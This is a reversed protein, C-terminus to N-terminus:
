AIFAPTAADLAADAAALLPALTGHAARDSHLLDLVVALDTLPLVAEVQEDDADADSALAAWEHGVLGTMGATGDDLHDYGADAAHVLARGAAHLAAAPASFTVPRSTRAAPSTM